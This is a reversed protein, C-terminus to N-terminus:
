ASAVHEHYFLYYLKRDQPMLLSPRYAAHLARGGTAVLVAVVMLASTNARMRLM